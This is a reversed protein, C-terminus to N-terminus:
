AIKKGSDLIQSIITKLQENKVFIVESKELAARYRLSFEAEGHATILRNLNELQEKLGNRNDNKQEIEEDIIAIIESLSRLWKFDEHNIVLSFYENNNSISGNKKEYAEKELDLLSKHLDLLLKILNQM